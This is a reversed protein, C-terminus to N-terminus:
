SLTTVFTRSQYQWESTMPNRLLNHSRGETDRFHLHTKLTDPGHFWLKIQAAHILTEVGISIEGVWLAVRDGQRLSSFLLNDRSIQIVHEGVELGTYKWKSLHSSERDVHQDSTRTLGVDMWTCCCPLKNTSTKSYRFSISACMLTAIDYKSLERTILLPRQSGRHFASNRTTYGNSDLTYGLPFEEVKLPVWRSPHSLIVLVVELPLAPRVSDSRTLVTSLEVNSDHVTWPCIGTGSRATTYHIFTDCLKAMWASWPGMNPKPSALFLFLAPVAGLPNPCM